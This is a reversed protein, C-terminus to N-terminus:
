KRKVAKAGALPRYTERDCGDILVSTRVELVADHGVLVAYKPSPDASKICFMWDGWQSDHTPRVASVEPAGTLKATAFAANVLEVLKKGEPSPSAPAAAPPAPTAAPAPTADELGIGTLSVGTCGTTALYIMLLARRMPM